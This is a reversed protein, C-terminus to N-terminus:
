RGSGSARKEQCAVCYGKEPSSLRVPLPIEEDCDRSACELSFCGSQIAVMVETLHGLQVNSKRLLQESIVGGQAQAKDAEDGKRVASSSLTLVEKKFDKELRPIDIRLNDMIAQTSIRVSEIACEKCCAMMLPNKQIIDDVTFVKNCSPNICRNISGDFLRLLQFNVMTLVNLRNLEEEEVLRNGEENIIRALAQVNSPSAEVIRMTRESLKIVKGNKM